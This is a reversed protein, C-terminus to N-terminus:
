SDENNVGLFPDVINAGHLMICTMYHNMVIIHVCVVDTMAIIDNINM